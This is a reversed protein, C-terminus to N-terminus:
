SPLTQYAKIFFFFFKLKPQDRVVPSSLPVPNSGTGRDYGITTPERSLSGESLTGREDQTRACSSERSCYPTWCYQLNHREILAVFNDDETYQAVTSVMHVLYLQESIVSKGLWVVLAVMENGAWNTGLDDPVILCAVSGGLLM